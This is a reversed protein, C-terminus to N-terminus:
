RGKPNKTACECAGAKKSAIVTALIRSEGHTLLDQEIDATTYGFCYCIKKTM